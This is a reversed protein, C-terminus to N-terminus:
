LTAAMMAAAVDVAEGKPLQRWREAVSEAVETMIPAYTLVSRHHFSPSMIRRHRRWTEAETTILGKGLGPELLRRTMETKTYNGANDLLVHKIAAPDNVLLVRLGLLKNELVLEEFAQSPFTAIANDRITRLFAFLPLRSQPPQPAALVPRVGEQEVVAM